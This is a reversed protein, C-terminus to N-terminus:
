FRGGAWFGSAVGEVGFDGFRSDGDLETGYMTRKVPPHNVVGPPTSASTRVVTLGLGAAVEHSTPGERERKEERERDSATRSLLAPNVFGGEAGSGSAAAAGSRPRAPIGFGAFLENANGAPSPSQPPEPYPFSAMFGNGGGSLPLFAFNFPNQNEAANATSTAPRQGAGPPSPPAFYSPLHMTPPPPEQHQNPSVPGSYITFSPIRAGLQPQEDDEGPESSPAEVDDQATNGIKPKKKTPRVVTKALESESYEDEEGQEIVGTINSATSDRHRKGLMIPAFGPHPPVFTSTSAVQTYGNPTSETPM